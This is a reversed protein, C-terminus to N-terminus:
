RGRIMALLTRPVLVVMMMHIFTFAVIISMAYFHIWRANDYGGLLESLFSLQVSKWVVLGSGVLIVGTIIVLVYIYKQVMNYHSLNGHVLKGRLALLLETMLRKPSLPWFKQKFRGPRSNIFLYILGNIGLIWMGAFHWQLAGGLWGGLTLANMFKFNFLPSANYIRWGSTVMILMALANLWHCVRLWAPHIVEPPTVPLSLKKM